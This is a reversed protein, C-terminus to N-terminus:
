HGAPAAPFDRMGGIPSLLLILPSLMTLAALAVLAQRAGLLGALAGALVGGLPIAGWSVFRVTAMVRSLLDPPSAVQRYTRTTTSLVVVGAAFLINGAAFLVFAAWGGGVPILWAGAVTVASSWLCARASGAVRVLWPSLAAGALAGAGDTALLIGVLGAPAHLTRVLYVTFVALQGGCIFNIATAEWMCPGIVPHRIVFHWGERVQARVPVSEAPDNEPGVKPLTRLLAASALYSAADALLAPAAGLFQVLVGGLSPGGLQTAAHTGSMLSNRAHLQAKPVVRPLFTFNAVDFFVDAFSVVLAVVILQGFTLIGIWWAIPISAVAAARALDLAVQVGRQPLGRVIAGAPLGVILWAAYAAAALLGVEIATAKLVLVATLPLAVKTVASGLNSTTSAAWYTWFPRGPRTAQETAAVTM